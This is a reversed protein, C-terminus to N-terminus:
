TERPIRNAEVPKELKLLAAIQDRLFGNEDELVALCQSLENNIRELENFKAMVDIDPLPLHGLKGLLQQLYEQLHKITRTQQTIMVESPPSEEGYIKSGETKVQNVYGNEAIVANVHQALAKWEEQDRETTPSKALELEKALMGARLCLASRLQLDNPELDPNVQLSECFSRTMAAEKDLYLFPTLSRVEGQESQLSDEQNRIQRVRWFLFGSLLLLIVIVELIVIFPLIGLSVM